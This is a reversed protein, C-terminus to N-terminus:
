VIQTALTASLSMSKSTYDSRMRVCQAILESGREVSERRLMKDYELSEINSKVLRKDLRAKAILDNSQADKIQVIGGGLQNAAESSANVASAVRAIREPQSMYQKAASVKAMLNNGALHQSRLIKGNSLNSPINRVEKGVNRASKAVRAVRKAVGDSVNSVWKKASTAGRVARKAVGENRVNQVGQKVHNFMNKISKFPKKVENVIARGFHKVTAKIGVKVVMKAAKVAIGVGAAIGAVAAVVKFIKKFVNWVSKRKQKNVQVDMEARTKQVSIDSLKKSAETNEKAQELNMEGMAATTKDTLYQMAGLLDDMTQMKNRNNIPPNNYENNGNRYLESPSSSRGISVNSM